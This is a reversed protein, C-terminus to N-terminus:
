GSVSSVHGVDKSVRPCMLVRPTGPTHYGSKIRMQVSVVLNGESFAVDIGMGGRHHSPRNGGM